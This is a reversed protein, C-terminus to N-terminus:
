ASEANGILEPSVITDVAAADNKARSSESRAAPLRGRSGVFNIKHHGVAIIDGDQLEHQTVRRGNVFCGNTSNLDILMWGSETEMFLNQYRSVYSSDLSIDCAQDRGLVMRPRNLAVEAIVEGRSTVLLHAAEVTLGGPDTEHVADPSLAEELDRWYAPDYRLNLKEGARAILAPDLSKKGTEDAESALLNLAEYSLSNIDRVVGQTYAHVDRLVEDPFLTFEDQGGVSQLCVNIYDATEDLTFGALRVHDFPALPRHGDKPMLESVLEESRTLLVFNLIPRKKYRLSMVWELENLASESLSELADVVLLVNTRKASQHRLYVEVINHLEAPTADIAPLGVDRLIKRLFQESTRQSPGILSVTVGELDRLRREVLASKGVGARGSILLCHM